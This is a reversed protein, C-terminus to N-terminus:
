LMDPVGLYYGSVLGLISGGIVAILVAVFGMEVSIRSGYIIRSLEDRGFSDTGMWYQRGPPTLSDGPNLKVPSYPALVPALIAMAIILAFVILGAVAARNRALQRLADGWLSRAAKTGLASFEGRAPLSRAEADAM